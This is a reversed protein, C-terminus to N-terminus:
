FISPPRSFQDSGVLANHGATQFFATSSKRGGTKLLFVVLLLLPITITIKPPCELAGYYPSFVNWLSGQPFHPFLHSKDESKFGEGLIEALAQVFSVKTTDRIHLHCQLPHIKWTLRKPSNFTGKKGLLPQTFLVLSTLTVTKNKRTNKGLM